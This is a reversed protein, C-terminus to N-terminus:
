NRRFFISEYPIAGYWEPRYVAIIIWHAFLLCWFMSSIMKKNNLSNINKLAIPIYICNFIDFFSTVRTFISIKAALAYFVLNISVFYLYKNYNINNYYPKPRYVFSFLLIALCMFYNLYGAFASGTYDESEEYYGYKSTKMFFSFIENSFVFCVISLVIM